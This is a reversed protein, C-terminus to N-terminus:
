ENTKITATIKPDIGGKQDCVGSVVVSTDINVSVAHFVCTNSQKEKFWSFPSISPHISYVTFTPTVKLITAGNNHITATAQGHSYSIGDVTGAGADPTSMSSTKPINTGSSLYVVLVFLALPVFRAVWRVYKSDIIKQFFVGIKPIKAFVGLVMVIIKVIWDVLRSYWNGIMAFVKGLVPIKTIDPIKTKKSKQSTDKIESDTEELDGNDRIAVDTSPQKNKNKSSSTTKSRSGDEDSERLSSLQSKFGNLRDKSVLKSLLAGTAIGKPVSLKNKVNSTDKKNRKEKPNNETNEGNTENDNGNIDEENEFAEDSENLDDDDSYSSGSDKGNKAALLDTDEDEIPNDNVYPDEPLGFVMNSFDSSDKDGNEDTYENDHYDEVSDKREKDNYDNEVEDENNNVIENLDDIFSNPKPSINSKVGDNVVDEGHQSLVPRATKEDFLHSIDDDDEHDEDNVDEPFFEDISDDDDGNDEENNLTKTNDSSDDPLVSYSSSVPVNQQPQSMTVNKEDSVNNSSSDDYGSTNYSSNNINNENNFSSPKIDPLVDKEKAERIKEANKRSNEAYERDPSELVREKQHTNGSSVNNGIAANHEMYKKADERKLFDFNFTSPDPLEDGDNPNPLYDHLDVEDYENEPSSFSM